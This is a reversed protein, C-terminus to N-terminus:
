DDDEKNVEYLVRELFYKADAHKILYDYISDNKIFKKLIRNPVECGFIYKHKEDSWIAVSIVSENINILYKCRRKLQTEPEQKTTFSDKFFEDISLVSTIFIYKCRLIKNFYRSKIPTRTHPDLLKFLDSMEFTNPRLDDLIAAKQGNYSEFPDNSSGSIYPKSSTFQEAMLKALTTKGVGSPGYIYFVIIEDSVHDQLYKLDGIQFANDFKKKHDIYIELDIIGGIDSRSLEGNLVRRILKKYDSTIRNIFKKYDYNSVVESVDYQHKEPTNAHILYLNADNWSGKIKSIFNPQVGFWKAVYELKQVQKFKMLVHIHRKKYETETESENDEYSFEQEVEDKDHIIYSWEEIVHKSELVDQIKKVEEDSEIQTVLECQRVSKLKSM